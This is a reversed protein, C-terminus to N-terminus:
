DEQVNLHGAEAAEFYGPSEEFLTLFRRRQDKDRGEVLVGDLCEIHISHVVQELRDFRSAELLGELAGSLTNFRVALGGAPRQWHVVLEFFDDFQHCRAPLDPAILDGDPDSFPEHEDLSLFDDIGGQRVVRNVYNCPLYRPCRVVSGQVVQLRTQVRIDEPAHVPRM